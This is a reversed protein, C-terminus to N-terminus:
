TTQKTPFYCNVNRYHDPSPGVYWGQEGNLDWTGCVSPKVHAVIKTGPPAIPSRNYDYQGFLQAYASLKPNIRSTRLLNLTLM